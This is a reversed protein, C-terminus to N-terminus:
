KSSTFRIEKHTYLKSVILLTKCFMNLCHVSVAVFATLISLALLSFYFVKSLIVSVAHSLLQQFLLHRNTDKTPLPFYWETCLNVVRVTETETWEEKLLKFLHVM